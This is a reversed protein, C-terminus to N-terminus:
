RRKEKPYCFSTHLTFVSSHFLPLINLINRMKIQHHDQPGVTVPLSAMVSEVCDPVIKLDPSLRSSWHVELM